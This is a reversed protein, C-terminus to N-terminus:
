ASSSPQCGWTLWATGWAREEGQFAFRDTTADDTFGDQAGVGRCPAMQIIVM